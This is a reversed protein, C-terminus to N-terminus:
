ENSFTSIWQVFDTDFKISDIIVQITGRALYMRSNIGTM